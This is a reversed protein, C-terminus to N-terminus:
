SFFCPLAPRERKALLVEELSTEDLRKLLKQSAYPRRVKRRDRREALVAVAHAFDVVVDVALHPDPFLLRVQLPLYLVDQLVLCKFSM